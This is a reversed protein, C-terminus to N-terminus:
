RLSGILNKYNDWLYHILSLFLISIFDMKFLRFRILADELIAESRRVKSMGGFEFSCFVVNAYLCDKSSSSIIARAIFDYDASLSYRLDYKLKKALSARILFAQHECIMGKAINNIPKSSKKHNKIGDFRLSDGIIIPEYKDTVKRFFDYFQDSVLDGANLFWVYGSPACLDLGKNMAHYLGEDKESIFEFNFPLQKARIQYLFSRSSDTSGGDIVIWTLDENLLNEKISSFTKILGQYNNYAVTIISLKM